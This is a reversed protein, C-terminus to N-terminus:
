IRQAKLPADRKLASYIIFLQRDVKLIWHSVHVHCKHFAARWCDALQAAQLGASVPRGRSSGVQVGPQEGSRCRPFSLLLVINMYFSALASISHTHTHTYINYLNIYYLAFKYIIFM